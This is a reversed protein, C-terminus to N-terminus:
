SLASRFGPPHAAEMAALFEGHLDGGTLYRPNTFQVQPGNPDFLAVWYVDPIAKWQRFLELASAEDPLKQHM